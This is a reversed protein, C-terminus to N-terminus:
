QPEVKMLVAVLQEAFTIYLALLSLLILVYGAIASGFTWGFFLSAFAVLGAVILAAFLVVFSRLKLRVSYILYGISFLAMYLFVFALPGGVGNKWYLLLFGTVIWVHAFFAFITAGLMSFPGSDALANGQIMLFVVILQIFATGLAVIGAGFMDGANLPGFWGAFLAGVVLCALGFAMVGFPAPNANKMPEAEKGLNNKPKPFTIATPVLLGQLWAGVRLNAVKRALGCLM